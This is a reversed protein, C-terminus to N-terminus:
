SRVAWAGTPLYWRSTAIREAEDKNAALVEGLCPDGHEQAYERDRHYIRWLTM